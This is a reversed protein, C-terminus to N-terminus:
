YITLLEGTYKFHNIGREAAKTYYSRIENEKRNSRYNDILSRIYNEPKTSNYKGVQDELYGFFVFCEYILRCDANSIPFKEIDTYENQNIFRRLRILYSFHEAKSALLDNKPKAGAKKAKIIGLYKLRNELWELTIDENVIFRDQYNDLLEFVDNYEENQLDYIGKEVRDFIAIKDITQEIFKKEIKIQIGYEEWEKNIEFLSKSDDFLKDTSNDPNYFLERVKSVIPNEDRWQTIYKKDVYWNVIFAKLEENERFSKFREKTEEFTLKRENYGHSRYKNLLSDIVTSTIFEDDTKYNDDKIQGRKISINIKSNGNSLFYYLIKSLEIEKKNATFVFDEASIPPRHFIHLLENALMYETYEELDTKVLLKSFEVIKNNFDTEIDEFGYKIREFFMRGQCLIFCKDTTLEVNQNKM